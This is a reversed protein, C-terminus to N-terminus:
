YILDDRGRKIVNSHTTHYIEENKRRKKRKLRINIRTIRFM